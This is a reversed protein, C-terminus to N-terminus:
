LQRFDRGEPTEGDRAARLFRLSRSLAEGDGVLRDYPELILPGDYGAGRLSAFFRDFPFGGEGPLCLSGDGRWDCLHVNVLADGMAPLFAFPDAGARMAQKIDLTFRVGPLLARMTRVREPDTLQCWAVNEWALLVGRERADECMPGVVDANRGADFPLARLLATNRGHYVYRGAGLEAAADLVKLYRTRADERQRRSRSFFGNEFATGLPHVATCSVPGLRRKVERAFSVTYESDTQLFVECCSVGLGAVAEAAEETELRGYFAATSVGIRMGRGERESMKAM